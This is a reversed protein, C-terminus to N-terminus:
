FTQALIQPKRKKNTQAYTVHRDESSHLNTLSHVEKTTNILTNGAGQTTSPVYYIILFKKNTLQIILAM